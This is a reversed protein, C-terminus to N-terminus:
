SEETEMLFTIGGITGNSTVLDVDVRMGRTVPRALGTKESPTDEAGIAFMNEEKTFQPVGNIRVNLIHPRLSLLTVEDAWFRFTRVLGSTLARFSLVGATPVSLAGDEYKMQAPIINGM